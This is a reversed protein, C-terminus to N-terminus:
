PPPIRHKTTVARTGTALRSCSRLFNIAGADFLVGSILMGKASAVTMAVNGNTPVLTPFGLGLVVSDPRTVNIPEDLHYIGPTLVLNKGSHIATNITAASDSPQAIFFNGIPISTGPTSGTSWSPGVSNQQLQPLSSTTAAM